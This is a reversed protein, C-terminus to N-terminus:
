ESAAVSRIARFVASVIKRASDDSIGLQKAINGHQSGGLILPMALEVQKSLRDGLQLKAVTSADRLLILTEPDMLNVSPARDLITPSEDDSASASSSIEQQWRRSQKSMHSLVSRTVIYIYHSFSSRSQDFRGRGDNRKLVARVVEQVVDEVDLGAAVIHAQFGHIVLCRIDEHCRKVNIGVATPNTPRCGFWSRLVKADACLGEGRRAYVGRRFYRDLTWNRGTPHGTLASLLSRATPHEVTGEPAHLLYSNDQMEIKHGGDRVRAFLIDGMLMM